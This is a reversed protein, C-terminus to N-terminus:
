NLHDVIIHQQHNKFRMRFYYYVLILINKLISYLWELKDAKFKVTM